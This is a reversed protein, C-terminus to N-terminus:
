EEYSGDLWSDEDGYEISQDFDDDEECEHADLDDVEEGCGHCWEPEEDRYDRFYDEDYAMRAQEEAYDYDLQQEFRIAAGDMLYEGAENQYSTM